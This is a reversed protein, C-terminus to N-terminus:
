GRRCRARHERGAVVHARRDAALLVDPGPGAGSAARDVAAGARAGLVQHQLLPVVVELVRQPPAVQALDGDGLHVADTYAAPRMSIHAHSRMTARRPCSRRRRRRCGGRCTRRRTSRGGTPTRRGCSWPAAHEGAVRDRDVLRVLEAHHALHERGVLQGLARELEGAADGLQRRHGRQEDLLRDVLGRVVM